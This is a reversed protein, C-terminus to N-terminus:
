CGLLRLTGLLARADTASPHPPIAALIGLGEGAEHFDEPSLDSVVATHVAANTRMLRAVLGFAEADALGQDVLVLTPPENKVRDLAAGATQALATEVGDEALAALFETFAAPRSTVTLIHM